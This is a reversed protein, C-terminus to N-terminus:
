EDILGANTDTLAVNDVLRGKLHSVFYGVFTPNRNSATAPSQLLVNPCFSQGEIRDALMWHRWDAWRKEQMLYHPCNVRGVAAGAGWSGTDFSESPLEVYRNPNMLRLNSM